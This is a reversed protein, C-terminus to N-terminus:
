FNSRGAAGSYQLLCFYFIFISIKQRNNKAVYECGGPALHHRRRSIKCKNHAPPHGVRRGTPYRRCIKTASREPVLNRLGLDRAPPGDPIRNSKKRAKKQLIRRPQSDISECGTMSMKWRALCGCAFSYTGCFLRNAVLPVDFTTVKRAGKKGGLVTGWFAYYKPRWFRRGDSESNM